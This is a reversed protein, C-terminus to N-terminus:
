RTDGKRQPEGRVTAVVKVVAQDSTLVFGPEVPGCLLSSGKCERIQGPLFTPGKENARGLGLFNVSAQRLERENERFERALRPSAEDPLVPVEGCVPM